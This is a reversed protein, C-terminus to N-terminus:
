IIKAWKKGGGVRLLKKNLENKFRMLKAKDSPNTASDIKMQVIDMENKLETIMENRIRFEKSNNSVKLSVALFLFVPNLLIGAKLLAGATVAKRIANFLGKRAYPDAMKEKINTENADKFKSIMGNIWSKTRNIPKMAAKGVNIADQAAKKAKQQAKTTTRDVDLLIDKIPHDSKPRGDDADGVEETMVSETAVDPLEYYIDFGYHNGDMDFEGTLLKNNAAVKNLENLILEPIEEFKDLDADSNYGTFQSLDGTVIFCSSMGDLFDERDIDEVRIGFGTPYTEKFKSVVEAAVKIAEDLQIKREERDNVPKKDDRGIAVGIEAKIKMNITDVKLLIGFNDMNTKFRLLIIGYWDLEYYNGTVAFKRINPMIKTKDALENGTAAAKKKIADFLADSIPDHPLLLFKGPEIVALNSNIYAVSSPYERIVDAKNLVGGAEVNYSFRLKLQLYTQDDGYTTPSTKDLCAINIEDPLTQLLEGLRRGYKKEAMHLDAKGLHTTPEQVKPKKKVIDFLGETMVSEFGVSDDGHTTNLTSADVNVGFGHEPDLDTDFTFGIQGNRKLYCYKAVVNYKRIDDLVNDSYEKDQEECASRILDKLPKQIDITYKCNIENHQDLIGNLYYISLPIEKEPHVKVIQGADDYVRGIRVDVTNRIFDDKNGDKKGADFILTIKDPYKLDSPKPARKLLEKVKDYESKGDTTVPGAELILEDIGLNLEWPNTSEVGRFQKDEKDSNNNYSGSINNVSHDDTHVSHDDQNRNLSNNYTYYYYNTGSGGNMPRDLDEESTLKKIPAVEPDKYPESGPAEEDPTKQIDEKEPEKEAGPRKYDDIDLEKEPEEEGFTAMDHANKIYPAVGGTKKDTTNSNYPLMSEPLMGLVNDAVDEIVACDKSEFIHQKKYVRDIIEIINLDQDAMNYLDMIVKEVWDMGRNAERIHQNVKSYTEPNPDKVYVKPKKIVSRFYNGGYALKDKAKIYKKLLEECRTQFEKIQKTLSKIKKLEIPKPDIKALAAKRFTIIDDSLSSSIDEPNENLKDIFDDICSLFAETKPLLNKYGDYLIGIKENSEVFISIYDEM